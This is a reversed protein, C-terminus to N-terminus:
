DLTPYDAKKPLPHQSPLSGKREFHRESPILFGAQEVGRATFDRELIKGRSEYDRRLLTHDLIEIVTGNGGAATILKKNTEM